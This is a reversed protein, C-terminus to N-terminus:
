RHPELVPELYRLVVQKAEDILMDDGLELARTVLASAVTIAVEASRRSREPSLAPQVERLVAGLQEAAAEGWAQGAAVTQDSLQAGIWLERYGPEDRYFAAFADLTRVVREEWTGPASAARAVAALLRAGHRELLAGLVAQKNRYYVYVSGISCGAERAIANTNVSALGHRALLDATADLIRDPLESMGDDYRISYNSM